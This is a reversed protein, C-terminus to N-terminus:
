PRVGAAVLREVYKAVVDVELNVPDGPGKRGLTTLELTTPILAVTFADDRAEVVTLSIGDVTISGKEVVYRALDAPLGITVVEWRDGPERSAIEGVGDVHGQVIHGGLRDSPRVPRELNVPCGPALAALSSRDLTEKMVDVTFADDKVDTVTLCVGNVAISAGHVADSVVLPGRVTLRASDGERELAVIEGLEEVIGTFM